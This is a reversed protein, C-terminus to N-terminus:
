NVQNAEMKEKENEKRGNTINWSKWYSLSREVGEIREGKWCKGERVRQQAVTFRIVWGRPAPTDCMREWTIRQCM